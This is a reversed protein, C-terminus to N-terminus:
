ARPPLGDLISQCAAQLASLELEIIEALSRVNIRDYGHRLVSGIKRIERWAIQPHDATLEDPLHRVAESIIELSREVARRLVLNSMVETAAREGRIDQILRIEALLDTLQLRAARTRDRM